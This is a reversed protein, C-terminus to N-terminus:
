QAGGKPYKRAVLGKLDTLQDDPLDDAAEDLILEAAQVAGSKNVADAYEAFTRKARKAPDPAKTTSPKTAPGGADAAPANTPAGETIEGTEADIVTVFGSADMNVFNGADAAETLHVANTLEISSPMYKLVQLLPIKKAYMEANRFSYHKDGQKNFKDRHRWVKAIPWVEIVPWSSGNVRGIAYVHTLARPHKPDEIEESPKHKVFPSDGLSYDFADGEYVAGTWVSSRGARNVLDVLGKWGPIFQAVYKNKRNDFYPVLFGQGNVEIELGLQASTVVSAAISTPDCKQLTPNKSFATLALRTMRDANMHKPLALALQPKLKDMFKSLGGVTLQGNKADEATATAM